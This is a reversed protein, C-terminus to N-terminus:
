SFASKCFAQFDRIKEAYAEKDLRMIENKHLMWESRIKLQDKTFNKLINRDTESRITVVKGLPTEPLLGSLLRSFEAYTMETTSLRIGYQQAFSAEILDYDIFIDYWYNSYNNIKKNKFDNPFLNWKLM